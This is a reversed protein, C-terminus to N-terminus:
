PKYIKALLKDPSLALKDKRTALWAKKSRRICKKRKRYMSGWEIGKGERKENRERRKGKRRNKREEKWPFKLMEAAKRTTGSGHLMM